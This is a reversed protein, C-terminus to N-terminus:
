DEQTQQPKRQARKYPWNQLLKWGVRGRRQLHDQTTYSFLCLLVHLALWYAASRWPRQMLEQRWAGARFEPKPKGPDHATLHFYINFLCKRGFTAKPWPKLWLSLFHAPFLTGKWNEHHYVRRGTAQSGRSHMHASELPCEQRLKSTDKRKNWDPSSKSFMSQTCFPKQFKLCMCWTYTGCGEKEFCLRLTCVCLFTSNASYLCYYSQGSIGPRTATYLWRPHASWSERALSAHSQSASEARM